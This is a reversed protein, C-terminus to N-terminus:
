LELSSLIIVYVREPTPVEPLVFDSYNDEETNSNYILWTIISRQQTLKTTTTTTKCPPLTYLHFLNFIFSIPHYIDLLLNPPFITINIKELRKQLPYTYLIMM